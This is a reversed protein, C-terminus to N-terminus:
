SEPDDQEIDIIRQVDAIIEPPVYIKILLYFEPDLGAIMNDLYREFHYRYEERRLWAVDQASRKRCDYRWAHDLNEETYLILGM